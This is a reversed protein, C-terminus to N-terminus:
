AELEPMRLLEPNEVGGGVDSYLAAVAEDSASAGGNVKLHQMGHRIIDRGAEPTDALVAKQKVAAVHRLLESEPIEEGKPVAALAEPSLHDKRAREALDQANAQDEETPMTVPRVDLKGTRPHYSAVYSPVQNQPPARKAIMQSTSSLGINVGPERLDVKSHYRKGNDEVSKRSVAAPM